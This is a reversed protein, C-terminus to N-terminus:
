EEVQCLPTGPCYDPMDDISTKKAMPIAVTTSCFLGAAMLVTMKKILLLFTMRM